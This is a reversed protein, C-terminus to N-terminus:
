ETEEEDATTDETDMKNEADSSGQGSPNKKKNNDDM